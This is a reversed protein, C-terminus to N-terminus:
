LLAWDKAASALSINDAVWWTEPAFKLVHEKGNADITYSRLCGNAVFAAHQAGAGARQLFEGSGLTM